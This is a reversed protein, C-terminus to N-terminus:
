SKTLRIANVLLEEIEVPKSLHTQFGALLVKERDEASVYGTLAIAPISRNPSSEDSRLARILDYGDMEPMGLDSILLDFKKNKLKELAKSASNVCVTEAGNQELLFRMLELVEEVDDAVLIRCGSLPEADNATEESTFNKGSFPNTELM